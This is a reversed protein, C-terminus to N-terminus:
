AAGVLLQATRLLKGADAKDILASFGSSQLDEPGVIEGFSTFLILPTQPLVEKLICGATLGNMSPMSLDLVVIDPTEQQAKSVAEHGNAAEACVTWGAQEFLQRLTTRVVISDDAILIRKV